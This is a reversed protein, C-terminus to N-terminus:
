AVTIKDFIKVMEDFVTQQSNKLLATKIIGGIIEFISQRRKQNKGFFADMLKNPIVYDIKLVHEECFYIKIGHMNSKKIVVCKEMKGDAGTRMEWGDYKQFVEFASEKKAFEEIKELSNYEDQIRVKREM